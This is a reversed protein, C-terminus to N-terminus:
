YPTFIFRANNEDPIAFVCIQEEHSNFNSVFYKAKEVQIIGLKILDEATTASLSWETEVEEHSILLEGFPVPVKHMIFVPYDSVGDKLISESADHIADKYLVIHKQLSEIFDPKIM